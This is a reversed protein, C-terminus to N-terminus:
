KLHWLYKKWINNRRLLQIVLVVLFTNIVIVKTYINEISLEYSDM